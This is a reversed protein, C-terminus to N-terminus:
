CCPIMQTVHGYEVVSKVPSSHIRIWSPFKFFLLLFALFNTIITIKNLFNLYIQVLEIIKYKLAIKKEM